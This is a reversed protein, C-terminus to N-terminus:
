EKEYYALALTSNSHKEERLIENQALLLEQFQNEKRTIPNSSFRKVLAVGREAVDNIVQLAKVKQLGDKYEQNEPWGRLTRPSFICNRLSSLQEKQPLVHRKWPSVKKPPIVSLNQVMEKKEEATLDEDFFALGVSTSHLFWLHKTFATAAEESVRKDRTYNVINKLLTLDTQPAKAARTGTYWPVLYTTVFFLNLERINALQDADIDLEGTLAFM